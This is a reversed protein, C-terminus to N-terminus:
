RSEGAVIHLAVIGTSPVHSERVVQDIADRLRRIEMAQTDAMDRIECALDKLCMEVGDLVREVRSRGINASRWDDLFGFQRLPKGCVLEAAIEVLRYHAQNTNM